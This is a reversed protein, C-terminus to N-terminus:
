KASYHFVMILDDIVTPKLASGGSTVNRLSPAIKQIDTGNVTLTWNGLGAPSASAFNITGFPLGNLFAATSALMASQGPLTANPQALYVKLPNGDYDGLPTADTKPDHLDKFKLFLDVSSVTIKKGRYQYPFRQITLCILLSQSTAADPPNLFKYWESPFEHKLSFLRRLDSQAQFPPASGSNASQAPPIPLTATQRAIARLNDGGYRSTYKLNMVVDSISEFDFANCDQPLEIQWTSILGAGEFPLYRPDQFSVEFL